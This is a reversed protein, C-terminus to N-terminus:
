TGEYSEIRNQLQLSCLFEKIDTDEYVEFQETVLDVPSDTVISPDAAKEFKIHLAMNSKLVLHKQKYRLIHGEMAATSIDLLYDAGNDKYKLKWTVSANSFATQTTVIKFQNPSSVIKKTKKLGCGTPKSTSLQNCPKEHQKLNEIRKYLKPCLSYRFKTEKTHGKMHRHLSGSQTFLRGSNEFTCKYEM